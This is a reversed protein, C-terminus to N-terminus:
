GMYRMALQPYITKFGYLTDISLMQKKTAADYSFTVRLTIGEFSTVYSEAGRALELPRSVFAFANKHFVLNAAHAGAVTVATGAALQPLAPAVKVSAVTNSASDASDETVTYTQGSITLIDGKIFKGTLATGSISLSDSGATVASKVTLGSANVQPMHSHIAQSMYNDVGQIRGISGERLAETSGSKEANVIAPIVSFNMDAEPDWVAYRPFVPAKNINLVKRAAALDELSSPATGATGGVTYVDKYLSLGDRNIKEAIAIAAPEIVQSTFNEIELAMEKATVEVSVDAIKDMTVLVKDEVIDQTEITGNFEKAEYVPPKRIQITDGVNAFDEAYDTYTLMPFVLNDKLIPLAQRAIEQATLFTNSM